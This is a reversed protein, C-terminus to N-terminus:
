HKKVTSVSINLEKSIEKNHKGLVLLKLVDKESSTIKRQTLMNINM